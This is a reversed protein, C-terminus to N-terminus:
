TNKSLKNWLNVKQQGDQILILMRKQSLQRYFQNSFQVKHHKLKEQSNM